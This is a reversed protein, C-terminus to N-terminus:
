TTNVPKLSTGNHGYTIANWIDHWADVFHTFFFARMDHWIYSLRKRKALAKVFLPDCFAQLQDILFAILMLMAFVTSLHRNGHGFNHEFHYDQNKLTNFTENEIKWRARGGKAIEHVSNDTVYLDTVWSFHKVKGKKNTETCEIFNVKLDPHSNNLQVDNAYRYSFISGNKSRYEFTKCNDKVLNFLFKHDGPKAGLIFRLKEDKLLLIFPGKSLLSDGTIIAKLHPHERRFDKIFRKAANVESDNKEQGDQKRIPEPAFPIVKKMDPHVLAGCVLNHTYTVSGDRHKKVCCDDCFVKPSSFFGTGDLSVLYYQDMFVFDELIKGRQAEAFMAKFVKRVDKPDVEDLRERMYTDSPISNIKYLTLLNSRVRENDHWGEDFHLLSPCKLGFVALGSLLCDKLTIAGIRGDRTQNKYNEFIRATLSVLSEACLNKRLKEVKEM